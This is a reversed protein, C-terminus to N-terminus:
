CELDTPTELLNVWDAYRQFKSIFLIRAMTWDSNDCIRGGDTETGQKINHKRM